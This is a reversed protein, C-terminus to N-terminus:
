PSSSSTHAAKFEASHGGYRPLISQWPEAVLNAARLFVAAREQWPLHSWDNRARLAAAVAEEVQIRGALHAIALM